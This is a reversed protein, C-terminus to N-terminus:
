GRARIPASQIFTHGIRPRDANGMSENVGLFAM